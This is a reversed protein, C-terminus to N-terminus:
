ESTNPAFKAGASIAKTELFQMVGFTGLERGMGSRKRGGFPARPDFVAGNLGVQGCKLRRAADLAEAQNGWVSAVLGYPTSNALEVAHEPGNHALIALVPAFLEEQALSAAPHVGSVVTAPFFWGQLGEPRTPRGGVGLTAGSSVAEEIAAVAKAAQAERRLPGLMVSPDAPDGVTWSRALEVAMETAEPVLCRPVILRSLATCTQGSNLFCSTTTHRLAAELDAGDLVIAASKGGLELALRKIQRAATAAVESGAALSGTFSVMDLKPHAVLSSGVSPGPGNILNFVGPPLGAQHAAEALALASFPALESPKAVVVAGALLAGLLKASLQYLPYNWPTIAGVVGVPELIVKSSGVDLEAQIERALSPASALLGAASLVQMAPAFRIPTGVEAQTLRALELAREALRSGMKALFEAREDISLAAWGALVSSAAEIAGELDAPGAVAVEGLKELRAPDIVAMREDSSSRQWRGAIYNEGRLLQPNVM